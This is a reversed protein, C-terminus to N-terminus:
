AWVLELEEVDNLEGAFDGYSETVAMSFVDAAEQLEGQRDADDGLADARDIAALYGRMNGGGVVIKNAATDVVRRRNDEVDSVSGDRKRSPSTIRIKGTYAAVRVGRKIARQRGIRDRLARADKDSLTRKETAATTYRQLRRMASNYARNKSDPRDVGALEAALARRGAVDRPISSASVSVGAFLNALQSNVQDILNDM